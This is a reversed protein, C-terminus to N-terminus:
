FNFKFDDNNNRKEKAAEITYETCEIVEGNDKSMITCVDDRIIGLSEYIDAVLQQGEETELTEKFSKKAEKATAVTVDVALKGVAKAVDFTSKLVGKLMPDM